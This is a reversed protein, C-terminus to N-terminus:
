CIRPIIKHTDTLPNRGGIGVRRPFMTLPTNRVQTLGNGWFCLGEGASMIGESAPIETASAVLDGVAAPCASTCEETASCGGRRTPPCAANCGASPGRHSIGSCDCGPPAEGQHWGVWLAVLPLGTSCPLIPRKAAWSEHLHTKNMTIHLAAKPLRTNWGRMISHVQQPKKKQVCVESSLFLQYYARANHQIKGTHELGASTNSMTINDTPVLIPHM